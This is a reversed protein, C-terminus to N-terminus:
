GAARAARVFERVKVADKDGSALDVGSNVDVGYPRVAEIAAAVNDPRLGGALIVPRRAAEVIRRSISWDHVRGTGGVRDATRSDLLLADYHPALREADDMADPGTVHVAQILPVRPLARRIAALETEALADAFQIVSAKVVGQTAVVESATQLHTVLVSHVYVPVLEVLRAATEAAIADESRYRVGVIFGLADAGAEVAIAVDEATRNGCIKVRM